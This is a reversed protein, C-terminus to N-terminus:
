SSLVGQCCRIVAVFFTLFFQRFLLFFFLFEFFFGLTFYTLTGRVPMRRIVGM